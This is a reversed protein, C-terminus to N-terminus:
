GHLQKKILETTENQYAVFQLVSCSMVDINVGLITEIKAVQEHLTQKKKSQVNVKLENYRKIEVMLMAKLQIQKSTEAFGTRELWGIDPEPTIILAKLLIKAEEIKEIDSSEKAIAKVLDLIRGIMKKKATILPNNINEFQLYLDRYAVLLTHGQINNLKPLRSYNDMIYLYRLDNLKTAMDWNWIPCENLTSYIDPKKFM